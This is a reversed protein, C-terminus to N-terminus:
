ANVGTFIIYNITLYPNMTDVAVGIEDSLVRGANRIYQAQGAAQPGPGSVANEDDPEGSAIRIASFNQGPNGQADTGRLDHTHEPLNKTELVVTSSGASKGLTRAFESDVVNAPSSVTYEDVGSVAVKIRNDM